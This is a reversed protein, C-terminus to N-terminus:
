SVSDLWRGFSGLREVYRRRRREDRDEGSGGGDGDGGGDDGTTTEHAAIAADLRERVRAVDGALADIDAHASPAATEVGPVALADRMEILRAYAACSDGAALHQLSALDGGILAASVDADLRGVNARLQVLAAEIADAILRDREGDRRKHTKRLRRVRDALQPSELARQELEDLLAAEDNHSTQLHFITFALRSPWNSRRPIKALFKLKLHARKFIVTM